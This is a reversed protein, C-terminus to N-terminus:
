KNRSIIASIRAMVEKPSFPKVVYDDVGMEFGHLKDYEEQRASLMIVPTSNTKRFEKLVSFGDLRPLMVDLIVCDYTNSNLMNLADLGDEAEEIEYNNIYAYERVVERIKLEDDVILLKVM